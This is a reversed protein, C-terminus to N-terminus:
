PISEGELLDDDEEDDDQAAALGGARQIRLDRRPFAVRVGAEKLAEHVALNMETKIALLNEMPVWYLLRFDLSSEGFGDFVATAEPESLVDEHDEAAIRLLDLVQRPDTGYRVGISLELRRQMDSLTWNTVEKSILDSNPVVVEAGDFTRM